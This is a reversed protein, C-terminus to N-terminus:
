TQIHDDLLKIMYVLQVMYNDRKSKTKSFTFMGFIRNFCDFMSKTWIIICKKM